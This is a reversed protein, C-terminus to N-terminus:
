PFSCFIHLQSCYGVWRHFHLAGARVRVGDEENLCVGCTSSWKSTDAGHRFRQKQVTKKGPGRHPTARTPWAGLLSHHEQTSFLHWVLACRVKNKQQNRHFSQLLGRVVRKTTYEIAIIVSGAKQFLAKLVCGNIHIFLKFSVHVSYRQPSSSHWCLWTILQWKALGRGLCAKTKPVAASHHNETTLAERTWIKVEKKGKIAEWGQRRTPRWRCQPPRCTMKPLWATFVFPPIGNNFHEIGQSSHRLLM